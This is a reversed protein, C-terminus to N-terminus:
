VRNLPNKFEQEGDPNELKLEPEFLNDGGENEVNLFSGFYAASDGYSGITGM